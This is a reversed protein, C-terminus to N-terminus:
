DADEWSDEDVLEELAEQIGEIMEQESNYGWEQIKSLPINYGERIDNLTEEDVDKGTANKIAQAFQEPTIDARQWKFSGDDLEVKRSVFTPTEVENPQESIGLTKKLKNKYEVSNGQGAQNAGSTFKGEADHNPNGQKNDSIM